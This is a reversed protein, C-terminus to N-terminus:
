IFTILVSKAKFRYRGPRFSVKHQHPLWPAVAATTGLHVPVCRTLWAVRTAHWAELVTQATWPITWAQFVMVCFWDKWVCAPWIEFCWLVSDILRELWLGTLDPSVMVCAVLWTKANLLQDSRIFCNCLSVDTKGLEGRGCRGMGGQMGRM